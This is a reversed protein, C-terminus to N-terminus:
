HFQQLCSEEPGRLSSFMSLVVDILRQLINTEDAIVCLRRKKLHTIDAIYCFM